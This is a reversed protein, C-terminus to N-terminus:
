PMPKSTAVAWLDFVIEVIELGEIDRLVVGGAGHLIGKVNFVAVHQAGVGRRNLDAIHEVFFLRGDADNGGAAHVAHVAIGGVRGHEM